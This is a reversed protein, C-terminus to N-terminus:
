QLQASIHKVTEPAYENISGQYLYAQEPKQNPFSINRVGDEETVGETDYDLVSVILGEVNHHTSQVIGGNLVIIIKDQTTEEDDYLKYKEVLHDIVEFFQSSTLVDHNYQHGDNDILITPTIEDLYRGNDLNYKFDDDKVKICHQNVHKSESGHAIILDTLNAKANQWITALHQQLNKM